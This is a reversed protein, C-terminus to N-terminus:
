YQEGMERWAEIIASNDQDALGLDIAQQLLTHHQRSIPLPLVIREGAPSQGSGTRTLRNWHYRDHKM